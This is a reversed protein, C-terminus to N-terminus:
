RGESKYRLVKIDTSGRDGNFILNETILGKGFHLPTPTTTVFQQM